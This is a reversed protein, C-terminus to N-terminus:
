SVAAGSWSCSIVGFDGFSQRLAVESVGDGGGSRLPGSPDSDHGSSILSPEFAAQCTRADTRVHM